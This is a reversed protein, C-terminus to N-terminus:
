KNRRFASDILRVASREYDTCYSGSKVKAMAESAFEFMNTSGYDRYTSKYNEYLNKIQSRLAPSVREFQNGLLKHTYEHTVVSIIDKSSRTFAIRITKGDPSTAGAEYYNKNSPKYFLLRSSKEVNYEKIFKGAIEKVRNEFTKAEKNSIGPPYPTDGKWIWRIGPKESRFKSQSNMDIIDSIAFSDGTIQYAKTQSYKNPSSKRTNRSAKAM